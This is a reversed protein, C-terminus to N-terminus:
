GLGRPTHPCTCSYGRGSGRHGQHAPDRLSTPTTYMRPKASKGTPLQRKSQKKEASRHTSSVHPQHDGPPAGISTLKAADDSAAPLQSVPRRDRENRRYENGERRADSSRLNPEATPVPRSSGAKITVVHGPMPVGKRAKAFDEPESPMRSATPEHHGKSRSSEPSTQNKHSRLASELERAFTEACGGGLRAIAKNWRLLIPDNLAATLARIADDTSPVSALRGPVIPTARAPPPV